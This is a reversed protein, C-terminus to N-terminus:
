EEALIIKVGKERETMMLTETLIIKDYKKVYNWFDSEEIISM